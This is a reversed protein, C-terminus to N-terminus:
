YFLPPIFILPIAGAKKHSWKSWLKSWAFSHFHTFILLLHIPSILPFGENKFSLYYYTVTSLKLYFTDITTCFIYYIRMYVVAIGRTDLYAAKKNKKHCAKQGCKSWM